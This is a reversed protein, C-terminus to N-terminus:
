LSVPICASFFTENEMFCPSVSPIMPFIPDPLLVSASSSQLILSGLEPVIEIPLLFM